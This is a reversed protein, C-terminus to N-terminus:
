QIEAVETVTTRKDMICVFRRISRRDTAQVLAVGHSESGFSSVQVEIRDGMSVASSRKLAELCKQRTEARFREWEGPPSAHSAVAGFLLIAGALASLWAGATVM